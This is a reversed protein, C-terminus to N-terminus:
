RYMELARRCYALANKHLLGLREGGDKGMSEQCIAWLLGSFAAVAAYAVYHRHEGTDPVRGLYRCLVADAEDMGYDSWALFAGVDGAPDAMGSREWGILSMNGEEDLLFDDGCCGNHCLREAGGDEETLRHVAEMDECLKEMDEFRSLGRGALERQLKLVGGWVDARYPTTRGSSHLTRMLELAQGVQRSDHYDLTRANKIYASIKWGRQGDMCIFTRDLGLEKAIQMAAAEGARGVSSDAGEGPHRYVYGRGRCSFRFSADGPGQKMPVIDTIDGERCDLAGAINRFVQCDTDQIYKEDFQRLEDLSDFEMIKGTGYHRAYMELEPLHRMYLNEWLQQRTVAGAYEEQLIQAFRRSFQRSFYVHGLMCWADAGGITVATIRGTEDCGVCYEETAGAAYVTAYYAQYVYQEFVNETFYDDSSCIYTNDLRDLVRMLTSTNNYRYYDPNVVVDVHFRDALYLMQEQRYGVVVTIDEIGAQQLQRIEREILVEGKVKLLAKPKEYSLPVFRSSVGAAMIVANKVKYPELAQLGAATIRGEGDVLGASELHRLLGDRKEQSLGCAAGPQQTPGESLGRRYIGHLVDFQDRSLM